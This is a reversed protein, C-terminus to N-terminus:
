QPPRRENMAELLKQRMQEKAEDSLTATGQEDTGGAIQAAAKRLFQVQHSYRRCWVCYLLHFRVALREYWRLKTDM